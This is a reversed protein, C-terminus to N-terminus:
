PYSSNTQDEPNLPLKEHEQERTKYTHLSQKSSFLLSM